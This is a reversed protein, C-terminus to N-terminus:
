HRNTHLTTDIPGVRNMPQGPEVSLAAPQSNKYHNASSQVLHHEDNDTTSQTRHNTLTESVNINNATTVIGFALLIAKIGLKDAPWNQGAAV